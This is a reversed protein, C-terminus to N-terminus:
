TMGLPGSFTSALYSLDAPTQTRKPSVTSWGLLCWLSSPFKEMVVRASFLAENTM